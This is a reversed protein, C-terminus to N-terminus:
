YVVLFVFITQSTNLSYVITHFFEHLIRSIELVLRLLIDSDFIMLWVTFNHINKFNVIYQLIIWSQSTEGWQYQLVTYIIVLAWCKRTSPRNYDNLLLSEACEFDTLGLPGFRAIIYVLLWLPKVRAYQAVRPGLVWTLRLKFSITGFTQCSHTSKTVIARCM